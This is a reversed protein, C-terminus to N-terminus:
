TIGQVIGDKDAFAGFIPMEASKKESAKKQM